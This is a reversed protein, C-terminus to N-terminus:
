FRDFLRRYRSKPLHAIHKGKRLNEEGTSTMCLDFDVSKYVCFPLAAERNTRPSREREKKISKKRKPIPLSLISIQLLLRQSITRLSSATKWMEMICPRVEKDAPVGDAACVVRRGPAAMRPSCRRYRRRDSLELCLRCHERRLFPRRPHDVFPLGCLLWLLFYDVSGDKTCASRFIFFLLVAATIPLLCNKLFAGVAERRTM